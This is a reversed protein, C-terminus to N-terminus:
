YVSYIPLQNRFPLVQFAQMSVRHLSPQRNFLIIDGEVLHRDVIDGVRLSKAVSERVRPSVLYKKLLEPPKGTEDPKSNYAKFRVYLAGPHKFPGNLVLTRLFDINFQTVREPYTLLKACYEPICVEDIRLNPDPSIVTRATFNTRKGLLNGRFRGHKGSLRQLLGRIFKQDQVPPLGSHQSNILRAVEAHLADCTAIFDTEPMDEELTAAQALIWQYIQTLDDENRFSYKTHTDSQRM